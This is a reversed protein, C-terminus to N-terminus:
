HFIKSFNFLILLIPIILKILIQGLLRIKFLFKKFVRIDNKSTTIKKNNEKNNKETENIKLSDKRGKRKRITEETTM